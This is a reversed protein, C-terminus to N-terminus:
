TRDQISSDGSSGEKRMQEKRGLRSGGEREKQQEKGPGTRAKEVHVGAFSKKRGAPLIVSM